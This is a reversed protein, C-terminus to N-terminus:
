FSALGFGFFLRFNSKDIIWKPKQGSIEVLLEIGQTSAALIRRQIFTSPQGLGAMLVVTKM